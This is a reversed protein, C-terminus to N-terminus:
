DADPDAIKKGLKYLFKAGGILDVGTTCGKQIAACPTGQPM